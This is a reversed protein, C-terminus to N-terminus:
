GEGDVDQTSAAYLLTANAINDGFEDTAQPNM